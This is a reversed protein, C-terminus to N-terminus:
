FPEKYPRLDIEHTWATKSHTLLHMYADAIASLGFLGDEGRERVREPGHTRFIEGNIGDDIIVHAAYLGKPGFERAMSQVVARLGAKAAAFAVFTPRSWPAVRIRRHLDRHRARNAGNPM